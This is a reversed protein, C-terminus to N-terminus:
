ARGIEWFIAVAGVSQESQSFLPFATVEINRRVGDIGVIKMARHAAREEGLAIALPLEDVPVARGTDPDEPAWMTGWQETTLDGVEDYKEGLLEEAAENYYVLTGKPDVLFTATALNSALERALILVLDM